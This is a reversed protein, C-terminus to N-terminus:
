RVMAIVEVVEYLPKTDGHYAGIKGLERELAREQKTKSLECGASEGSMWAQALFYTSGYRHFVLKAIMQGGRREASRVLIMRQPEGDHNLIWLAGGTNSPIIVDYQGAPVAQDGINFDFPVQVVLRKTSKGNAVAASAATLGAILMLMAAVKLVQKTM